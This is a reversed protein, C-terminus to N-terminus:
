AVVAGFAGIGDARHRTFGDEFVVRLLNLVMAATVAAFQRPVDHDAVRVAGRGLREELFVVVEAEALIRDQEELLAHHGAEVAVALEHELSRVTQGHVWVSVATTQGRHHVVAHEFVGAPAADIHQGIKKIEKDDLGSYDPLM